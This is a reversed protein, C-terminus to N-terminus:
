ANGNWVRYAERVLMHDMHVPYWVDTTAHTINDYVKNDILFTNTKYDGYQIYYIGPTKVSSFDFKVYHYRYFDGWPVISGSFIESEKGDQDVKFVKARSLPKDKKDLEIVAVKNQTPIYGVQSFGINPERVWGPVANPEIIWSLVKGTKGTPLLSRVVFWGNQAIMRGDYLNIDADPSTIKIMSQPCDPALIITRGTELAVPDVFLGTGRDDYTRYDNFQRTKESNPRTITSGVAYRSFINYRGDMVYKKGWYQSPLFELNFGAHNELAPPVPKDLYVSIEVGTGMPTAVIRSDFDYYAYRLTAEITHTLSDATRESIVPILDWQEPTKSLRVAGGTATRIGHHIIEIGATKEDNFIGTFRNSYVLINAGQKEFYELENLVMSQQLNSSECCALLIVITSLIIVKKMM